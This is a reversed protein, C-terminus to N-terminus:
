KYLQNAKYTFMSQKAEVKREDKLLPEIWDHMEDITNFAPFPNNDFPSNMAYASFFADCSRRPHFWLYSQQLSDISRYHTKYFFHHWSNEIETKSKIDIIEIESFVRSKNAKIAELMLNKAEIDSEPASYGYITIFLAQSLYGKLQKWERNISEDETYDKKHIPYLLKLPQFPKYCRHCIQNYKYGSIHCDPCIGVAVNGHLFIVNPLRKKIKHHRRLCQLLLPDWNVTAIIDKERLSLILYDYLTPTDPIRLNYFYQYLIDDIDTKIRSLSPNISIGNYLEEFDNLLLYYEQPLIKDLNLLKVLSQMLPLEYGKKDGNPFAAVSAGAGLIVVHPSLSVNNQTPPIVDKQFGSELM